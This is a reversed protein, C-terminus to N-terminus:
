LLKEGELYKLVPYIHYLTTGPHYDSVPQLDRSLAEHWWGTEVDIYNEKYLDSLSQLLDTAQDQYKSTKAMITAARMVELGCWIRKGDDLIDGQPNQVNYIGGHQQDVGNTIVFDFLQQQFTDIKPDNLKKVEKYKELLWIWEANHGAEIKHGEEDHEDLNDDFFEDLTETEADFFHKDFLYFIEDAIKIYDPDDNVEAMFLCAEFLHMHPNQRRISPISQLNSDLAEAFGPFGRVRFEKRIFNLTRKAFSLVSADKNLKYLMACALIVFAHGYLDYRSDVIAGEKNDVSFVFGGTEEVHYKEKIFSFAEELKDTFNLDPNESQALAYVFIQRCQTLLRKPLDIPEKNSDLREHFGGKEDVFSAFWNNVYNIYISSKM